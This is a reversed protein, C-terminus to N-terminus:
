LGDDEQDGLPHQLRIHGSRILETITRVRVGKEKLHDFFTGPNKQVFAFAKRSQTGVRYPNSAEAGGVVYVHMGSYPSLRGHRKPKELCHDRHGCILCYIAQNREVRCDSEAGCEPCGKRKALREPNIPTAAGTPDKKPRQGNGNPVGATHGGKPGRKANRRMETWSQRQRGNSAMNKRM